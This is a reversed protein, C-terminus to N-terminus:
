SIKPKLMQLNQTEEKHGGNNKFISRSGNQAHQTLPHITMKRQCSEFHKYKDKTKMLNITIHIPVPKKPNLSNSTQENRPIQLNIDKPLNPSNEPWEKRSYKKNRGEQKKIRPTQFFYM